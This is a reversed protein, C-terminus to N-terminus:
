MTSGTMRPRLSGAYQQPEIAAAVAPALTGMFAHAQESPTRCSAFIITPIMLALFVYDEPHGGGAMGARIARVLCETAKDFLSQLQRPTFGPFPNGDVATPALNEHLFAINYIGEAADTRAGDFHELVSVAEDYFLWARAHAALEREPVHSSTFSADFLAINSPWSAYIALRDLWPLSADPAPLSAAIGKLTALDFAERRLYVTAAQARALAKHGEAILQQCTADGPALLSRLERTATALIHELGDQGPGMLEGLDEELREISVAPDTLPRLCLDYLRIAELFTWGGGDLLDDLLDQVIEYLSSTAIARAIGEDTMRSRLYAHIVLVGAIRAVTKRHTNPALERLGKLCGRLVDGGPFSEWGARQIRKADCMIPELCQRLASPPIGFDFRAAFEEAAQGFRGILALAADWMDEKALRVNSTTGRMREVSPGFM